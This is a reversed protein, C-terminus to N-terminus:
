YEDVPESGNRTALSELVRQDINESILRTSGDAFACNLRGSHYSSLAWAAESEKLFVGDGPITGPPNIGRGAAVITGIM